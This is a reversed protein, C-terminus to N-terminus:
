LDLPFSSSYLSSSSSALTVRFTVGNARENQLKFIENWQAFAKVLLLPKVEEYTRCSCIHIALTLSQKLFMYLM